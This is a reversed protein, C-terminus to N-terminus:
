QKLMMQNHKTQQPIIEQGNITLGNNHSQITFVDVSHGDANVSRKSTDLFPRLFELMGTKKECSPPLPMGPKMQTLAKACAEKDVVYAAPSLADFNVVSIQADATLSEMNNPKIVGSISISGSPFVINIDEISANFKQAIKSTLDFTQKEIASTDSGKKGELETYKEALQAYSIIDEKSLGNLTIKASITKPFTPINPLKIDSIRMSIKLNDEFIISNELKGSIPKEGLLPSNISLTPIMLSSVIKDSHLAWMAETDTQNAGTIQTDHIIKPINIGFVSSSITFDIIDTVAAVDLKNNQPAVISDSIISAIKLTVEENKIEINNTKLSTNTTLSLDPVWSVTQFYEGITLEPESLNLQALENWNIWSNSTIKYQKKGNFDAIRVMRFQHQSKESDKPNVFTIIFDKGDAKVHVDIVKDLNQDKLYAKAASLIQEEELTHKTESSLSIKQPIEILTPQMQNFGMFAIGGLLISAAVCGLLIKKM